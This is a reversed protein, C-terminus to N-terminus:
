KGRWQPKRKELFAQVGEHFDDSTYCLTVLDHGDVGALRTQRLRRIAEKTARLTLPAHGAIQEAVERGRAELQEEPVVEAFLGIALGEGAGVLRARFIMEKVRAPGLLDVLRAYNAMSLCNGLTRAIPFGYQASTTALRLDSAAAIAAGAGVAFGRILAIVPKDVTELRGIVRDMRAEYELADQETQFATFQSIDTGAVFARDGAGRLLLARVTDDADVRECTAELGQYMAWTMANRAAPRNFTLTAVAGDQEYILEDSSQGSM